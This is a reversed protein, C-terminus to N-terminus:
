EDFTRLRRVRAELQGGAVRRGDGLDAAPEVTQRQRDLERGRPYLQERGL